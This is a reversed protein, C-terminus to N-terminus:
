HESSSYTNGAPLPQSGQGEGTALILLDYDLEGGSMVLVRRAQDILLAKEGLRLSIRREEYWGASYPFLKGEPLFGAIYHGLM